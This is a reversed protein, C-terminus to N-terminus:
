GSPRLHASCRCSLCVSEIQGILVAERCPTCVHSCSMSGFLLLCPRLLLMVHFPSSDLWFFNSM